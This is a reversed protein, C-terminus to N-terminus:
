TGSKKIQEMQEKEREKQKLISMLMDAANPSLEKLLEYQAMAKHHYGQESYTLGLYLQASTDSANAQVAEEYEEAALIFNAQSIKSFTEANSTDSRVQTYYQEILKELETRDQYPLKRLTDPLWFSKRDLKVSKGWATLGLEYYVNALATHAQPYDPDIRLVKKYQNIATMYDKLTHYFGGLHFHAEAYEPDLQIAKQVEELAEEMQKQHFFEVGKELHKRAQEAKDGGCGGALLALMSFALTAMVCILVLRNKPM